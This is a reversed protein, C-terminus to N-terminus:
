GAWVMGAAAVTSTAALLLVVLISLILYKIRNRYRHSEM